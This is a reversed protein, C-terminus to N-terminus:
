FSYGIGTAWTNTNLYSSENTHYNALNYRARTWTIDISWNKQPLYRIGVGYALSWTGVTQGDSHLKAKATGLLAYASIHENLRYSPGALFSMYSIHGDSNSLKATSWNFDSVIGIKSQSPEYSYQVNIGSMNGSYWSGDLHTLAYGASITHHNMEAKALCSITALLTLFCTLHIKM